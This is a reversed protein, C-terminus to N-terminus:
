GYNVEREKAEQQMKGLINPDVELIAALIEAGADRRGSNLAMAIPDTDSVSQFVRFMSLLRWIFYRGGKTGLIVRLEETNREYELEAKTKSEKVKSADGVDKTM